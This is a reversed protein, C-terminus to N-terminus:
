GDMILIEIYDDRPYSLVEGNANTVKFNSKFLGTVDTDGDKWKYEVVGDSPELIDASDHVIGGMHFEVGQASSLDVPLNNETIQVKLPDSTDGRKFHFDAM